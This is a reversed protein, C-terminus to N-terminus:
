DRHTDDSSLNPWNACLETPNLAVAPETANILDAAQSARQCSLEAAIEVRSLQGPTATPRAAARTRLHSDRLERPHRLPSTPSLRSGDISREALVARACHFGGAQKLKTIAPVRPKPRTADRTHLSVAGRWWSCFLGAIPELFQYRRRCSGEFNQWNANLDAPNLGTAVEVPKITQPTKLLGRAPRLRRTQARGGTGFIAV